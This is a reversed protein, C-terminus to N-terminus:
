QMAITNTDILQLMNLITDIDTKSNPRSNDECTQNYISLNNNLKNRKNSSNPISGSVRLISGTYWDTPTKPKTRVM